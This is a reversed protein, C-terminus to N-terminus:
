EKNEDSGDDTPSPEAPADEVEPAAETSPEASEEAPAEPAPADTPEEVPEEPEEAPAEPEVLEDKVLHLKKVYRDRKRYVNKESNKTGKAKRRKKVYQTILISVLTILLVVVLVISSIYLGLEASNAPEEEEDDDGSDSTNMSIDQDVATYDVFVNMENRTEDNYTLYALQENFLSPDYNYGTEGDAATNVNFPVYSASDYLTYSYYSASYTDKVAKFEAETLKGAAVLDAIAKEYSAVNEKTGSSIGEFLDPDNKSLLLDHYAQIIEAEYAALRTDSVTAFSYDFAVAGTLYNDSADVGTKDREGSWLELRYG